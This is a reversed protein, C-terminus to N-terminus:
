ILCSWFALQFFCCKALTQQSDLLFGEESFPILKSFFEDPGLGVQDFILYDWVQTLHLFFCSSLQLSFGSHLKLWVWKSTKLPYTSNRLRGGKPHHKHTSTALKDNSKVINKCLQRKLVTEHDMIMIWPWNIKEIWGGTAPRKKKELHGMSKGKYLIKYQNTSTNGGGGGWLYTSSFFM